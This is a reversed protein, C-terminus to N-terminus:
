DLSSLVLQTQEASFRILDLSDQTKMISNSCHITNPCFLIKQIDWVLCLFCLRRLFLLLKVGRVTSNRANSETLSFDM